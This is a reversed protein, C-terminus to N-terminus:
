SHHYSAQRLRSLQSHRVLLSFLSNEELALPGRPSRDSRGEFNKQWAPYAPASFMPADTWNPFPNRTSKRFDTILDRTASRRQYM